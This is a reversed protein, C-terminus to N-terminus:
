IEAISGLQIFPQVAEDRAVGIAHVHSEILGLVVTKEHADITRTRDGVLKRVAANAGVGVFQGDRIAAAQVISFRRDATLIKGNLVVLDAPREAGQVIQSAIVFAGAAILLNVMARKM